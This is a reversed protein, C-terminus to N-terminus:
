STASDFRIGPHRNMAHVIFDRSFTRARPFSIGIILPRPVYDSPSSFRQRLHMSESGAQQDVPYSAM